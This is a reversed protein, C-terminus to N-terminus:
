IVGRASNGGPEPLSLILTIGVSTPTFWTSPHRVSKLSVTKGVSTPTARAANCDPGPLTCTKGVDTPTARIRYQRLPRHIPNEGCVTPTARRTPCFLPLPSFTIGVYTPTFRLGSLRLSFRCTTKGVCLPPSGSFPPCNSGGNERDARNPGPLSTQTPSLVRSSGGSLCAKFPIEVTFSPNFVTNKLSVYRM